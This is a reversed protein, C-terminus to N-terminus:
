VFHFDDDSDFQLFEPDTEQESPRPPPPLEVPQNVQTQPRGARHPRPAISRDRNLLGEPGEEALTAKWRELLTPALNYYELVKRKLGTPASNYANIVMLKYAGSFVRQPTRKGGPSLAEWDKLYEVAVDFNRHHLAAVIREAIDVQKRKVALESALEENLKLQQRYTSLRLYEKRRVMPNGCEDDNRM